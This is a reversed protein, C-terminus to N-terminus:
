SRTRTPKPRPIAALLSHVNLRLVSSIKRLRRVNQVLLPLLRLRIPANDSLIRVEATAAHLRTRADALGTIAASHTLRRVTTARRSQIPCACVRPLAAESTKASLNLQFSSSM